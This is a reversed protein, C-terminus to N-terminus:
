LTCWLTYWKTTFIDVSYVPVSILKVTISCLKTGDWLVYCCFHGSCSCILFAASVYRIKFLSCFKAGVSMFRPANLTLWMFWPANQGEAGRLKSGQYILFSFRIQDSYIIIKWAMMYQMHIIMNSLTNIFWIKCSVRNITTGHWQM